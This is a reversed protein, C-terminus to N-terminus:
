GFLPLPRHDTGPELGMWPGELATYVSRFDVDFPVDGDVLGGLDPPAGFTGGRVGRGVVLVPGAAGHDTGRSGNEAVRRGFESFVLTAVDGAVGRESLDAQFAALATSVEGLRAAHIPAQRAHTDFGGIEVHFLRTGFGGAVLKAVLRLKRALAHAPYEAGASSEALRALEETAAYTTRAADRLFALRAAASENPGGGSTRLLADRTPEPVVGRGELRFRAPDVVSPALATRARLAFPLDGDGVHVAILGDSGARAVQDALRGMWGRERSAVTPDAGHWVDMSRFHSRSSDPYGVRHVVAVDGEAYLAGLGAMEPHFGHDDDIAHLAKPALALSPRSRFYADQRHPVVTNLGDNGGTLQLVVLVRGGRPGPAGFARPALSPLLPIAATLRLGDVLLSRRTTRM